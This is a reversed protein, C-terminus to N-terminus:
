EDDLTALIADLSADAESIITPEPKAKPASVPEPEQARHPPPASAPQQDSADEFVADVEDV